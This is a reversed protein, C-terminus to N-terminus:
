MSHKEDFGEGDTLVHINFFHTGINMIHKVLVVEINQKCHSGEGGTDGQGEGM